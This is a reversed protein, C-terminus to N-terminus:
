SLRARAWLWKHESSAQMCMNRMRMILIHALDCEHHTMSSYPSAVALNGEPYCPLRKRWELLVLSLGSPKAGVDQGSGLASGSCFLVFSSLVPCFLVLCFGM